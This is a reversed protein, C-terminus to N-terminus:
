KSSLGLDSILKRWREADAKLTNSFDDGGMTPAQLGTADISQRIAPDALAETITKSLTTKVNAPLNAPAVIGVIPVVVFNDIGAEKMTPVNPMDPHRENSTVALAHVRGAKILQLISSTAEFMFDVTGSMLQNVNEAGGKFPIHTATIGATRSFLETMMHHSGGIGSSGYNLKGPNNKAATILGDM